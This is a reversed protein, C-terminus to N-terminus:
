QRTGKEGTGAADPGAAPKPAMPDLVPRSPAPSEVLKVTVDRVWLRGAPWYGYLDVRVWKLDYPARHGAEPPLVSPVFDAVATNWRGATSQLKPFQRRYVERRQPAEEGPTDILAYGKVFPLFTPGESAYTIECRYRHGPTVEIWDSYCALGHAGAVSAPMAFQVAKAGAAGPAPSWLIMKRRDEQIAARPEDTWSPPYRYSEIVGEWNDLRDNRGGSFSANALLNPNREWAAASAPDLIALDESPHTFVHGTVASVADELIFRLDTWYTMKYTKDLVLRGPWVGDADRYDIVCARITKAPGAGGAEGFVAVDAALHERVLEALKRRDAQGGRDVKAASMADAATFRDIVEWGEITRWKKGVAFAIRQGYDEDTGSTNPFDAAFPLIVVAPRSAPGTAPRSQGMAVAVVALAVASIGVRALM